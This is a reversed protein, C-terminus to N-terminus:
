SLDGMAEAVTDLVTAPTKRAKAEALAAITLVNREERTMAAGAAVRGNRGPRHYAAFWPDRTAM